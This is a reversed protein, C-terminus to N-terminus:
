PLVPEVLRVAVARGLAVLTMHTAELTVILWGVVHVAVTVSVPGAPDIAIVGVPVTSKVVLPVPVKTVEGQV